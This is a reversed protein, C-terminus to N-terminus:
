VLFRDSALLACLRGAVIEIHSITALLNVKDESTLDIAAVQSSKGLLSPM